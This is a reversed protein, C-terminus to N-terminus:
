RGSRHPYLGPGDPVQSLPGAASGRPDARRVESVAKAEIYREYRKRLRAGGLTVPFKGPPFALAIVRPLFGRLEEIGVALPDNVHVNAPDQCPHSGRRIRGSCRVVISRRQHKMVDGEAEKM